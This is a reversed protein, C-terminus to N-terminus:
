HAADHCGAIVEENSKNRKIPWLTVHLSVYNVKDPRERGSLSWRYEAPGESCGEIKVQCGGGFQEPKGYKETLAAHVEQCHSLTAQGSENDYIYKSVAQITVLGYRRSFTLTYKDFMPHPHPATSYTVDDGDQSVFASGGLVQEVQKRTMGARLGFPGEQAFSASVLLVVSWIMRNM